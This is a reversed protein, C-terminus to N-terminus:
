GNKFLGRDKMRLLRSRTMPNHMLAAAPAPMDFQDSPRSPVEAARKPTALPGRARAKSPVTTSPSRPAPPLSDVVDFLVPIDRLQAGDLSDIHSPVQPSLSENAGARSKTGARAARAVPGPEANPADFAAASPVVAAGHLRVTEWILGAAALQRVREKRAADSGLGAVVAHLEPYVDSDVELELRVVAM